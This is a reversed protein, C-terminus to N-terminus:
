NETILIPNDNIDFFLVDSIERSINYEDKIEKITDAKVPEIGDAEIYINATYKKDDEKEVIILAGSADLFAKLNESKTNFHKVINFQDEIESLMDYKKQTANEESKEESDNLGVVFCYETASYKKKSM